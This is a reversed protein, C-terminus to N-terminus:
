HMLLELNEMKNPLNRDITYMGKLKTCTCIIEVKSTRLSCKSETLRSVKPKPIGTVSGSNDETAGKTM